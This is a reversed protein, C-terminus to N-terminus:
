SQTVVVVDIPIYSITSPVTDCKAGGEQKEGVGFLEEIIFDEQLYDQHGDKWTGSEHDLICGIFIVVLEGFHEGESSPGFVMMEVREREEFCLTEDEMSETIERGGGHHSTPM